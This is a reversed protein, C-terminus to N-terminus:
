SEAEALDQLRRVNSHMADIDAQVDEKKLSTDEMQELVREFQHQAEDVYSRAERRLARAFDKFLEEVQDRLGDRLDERMSRSTLKKELQNAIKNKIKRYVAKKGSFALIGLGVIAGSALIWPNLFGAVVSLIYFLVIDAVIYGVILSVIALLAAQLGDKFNVSLDNTGFVDASASAIVQTTVDDAQLGQVREIYKAVQQLDQEIRTIIKSLQDELLPTAEERSWMKVRGILKKEADDAIEKAAKKPSFLPNENTKWTKKSAKVDEVIDPWATEFSNSLRLAATEGMQQVKATMQDIDTRAEDQEQKRKEKEAKLHQLDQELQGQRADLKRSITNSLRQVEDLLQGYCVPMVNELAITEVTQKLEGVTLGTDTDLAGDDRTASFAVVQEERIGFQALHELVRQKAREIEEPHGALDAKNLVITMGRAQGAMIEFLEREYQTLPQITNLVIVSAHAGRAERRALEDRIPDENLGPTDVLTIRQEGAFVDQPLEVRWHEVRKSQEEEGKGDLWDSAVDPLDSVKIGALSRENADGANKQFQEKPVPKLSKRSYAEALFYREDDGKTIEIIGSTSPLSDTPMFEARGILRNILTSKGVNFEGLVAIRVNKMQQLVDRSREIEKSFAPGLTCAVEQMGNISSSVREWLALFENPTVDIRRNKKAFGLAFAALRRPLSRDTESWQKIPADLMRYREKPWSGTLWGHVDAADMPLLHPIIKDLYAHQEQTWHRDVSALYVLLVGLLPKELDPLDVVDSESNPHRSEDQLDARFARLVAKANTGGYVTEATEQLLNRAKPSDGDRYSYVEIGFRLFLTAWEEETTDLCEDSLAEDPLNQQIAHVLEM